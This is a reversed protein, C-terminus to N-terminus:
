VSAFIEGGDKQTYIQTYLLPIKERKNSGCITTRCLCTCISLSIITTIIVIGLGLVYYEM